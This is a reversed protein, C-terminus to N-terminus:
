ASSILPTPHTPHTKPTFDFFNEYGEIYGEIWARKWLFVFNASFVDLKDLAKRLLAELTWFGDLSSPFFM